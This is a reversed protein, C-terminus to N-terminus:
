VAAAMTQMEMGAFATAPLARQPQAATVAVGNWLEHRLRAVIREFKPAYSDSDLRLIAMECGYQEDYYVPFDTGNHSLVQGGIRRLMTASHNRMTATTIAVAGNLLQGVAFLGLAQNIAESTYRLHNSLAWGGAELFTVGSAAATRRERHICERLRHGWKASQALASHSAFFREFSTSEAHPLLRVCGVVHGSDDLTLLHWSDEDLPSTHRGDMTLDARTIARDDLYVQGRLRQMERLLRRHTSPDAIENRCIRKATVTRPSLLVHPRHCTSPSLEPMPMM